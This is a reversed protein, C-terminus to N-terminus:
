RHCFVKSHISASSIAEWCSIRSWFWKKTELAPHSPHKEVDQTTGSCRQTTSESFLTPSRQTLYRPYPHNAVASWIFRDSSLGHPSFTSCVGKLYITETRQCKTRWSSKRTIVVWTKGNWNKLSHSVSSRAGRGELGATLTPYSLLCPTNRVLSCIGQCVPNPRVWEEAWIGAQYRACLLSEASSSLALLHGAESSVWAWIGFFSRSVM